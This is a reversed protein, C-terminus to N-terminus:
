GRDRRPRLSTQPRGRRRTRRGRVRRGDGRLHGGDSRRDHRDPRAARSREDRGRDHAGLRQRDLIARLLPEDGGPDLEGSPAQASPGQGHAAQNDGGRGATDAVKVSLMTQKQINSWGQTGLTIGSGCYECTIVMEGFKPSIPAGCNPCKISTVGSPAIIQAPKQSSAAAPQQNGYPGSVGQSGGGPPRASETEASTASYHTM